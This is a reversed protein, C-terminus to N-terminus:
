CLTKVPSRPVRVGGTHAGKEGIPACGRRMPKEKAPYPTVWRAARTASRASLLFLIFDTDTDAHMYAHMYTHVYRYAHMCAQIYTCAYHLCTHICAYMYVHTCKNMLAHIYM